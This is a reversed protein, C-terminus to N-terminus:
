EILDEEIGLEIQDIDAQSYEKTIDDSKSNLIYDVHFRDASGPHGSGDSYYTIEPEGKIYQGIITLYKEKFYIDVNM